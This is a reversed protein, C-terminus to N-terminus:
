ARRVGIPAVAVRAVVVLLASALAGGLLFGVGLVGVSGDYFRGISVALVFAVLSSLSAVVSSGTGAVAGLSQMALANLNGVLLGTCGLMAGACLMFAVLPPAGEFALSLVVMLAGCSTMALAAARSVRAAGFRRVIQGNLFAAAGMGAALVAFFAPFRLTIAYVDLFVAQATSLWLLHAGFVFGAAFTCAMVRPHRVIVAVNRGLARPALPLRRSAPLTEPQRALLWTGCVIAVVLYLGFIARWDLALLVLQGVFPALMPVIIFLTFVFSLVRAMEDGECADRIMARSGIKSGSVGIGQVIRGLLLTEFSGAFMGLLTGVTYIALGLVITRRRGIADSVPGFVLEGVIMGAIFLSVVLQTDRPDAVALAEGVHRLAPLLADISLATLSTM